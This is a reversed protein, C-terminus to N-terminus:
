ALLEETAQPKEVQRPSEEARIDTWLLPKNERLIRRNMCIMDKSVTLELNSELM